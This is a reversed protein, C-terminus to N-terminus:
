VSINAETISDFRAPLSSTTTARAGRELYGNDIMKLIERVKYFAAGGRSGFVSAAITSVAPAEDANDLYDAVARVEDDSIRAAPTEPEAAHVVAPAPSVQLVPCNAPRAAIAQLWDMRPQMASAVGSTSGQVYWQHPQLPQWREPTDALARWTANDVNGMLRTAFMSRVGSHVGLTQVQADQTGLVVWIRCKRADRLLRRLPVAVAEGFEDVLAPFDDIYLVVTRGIQENNRIADIRRETEQLAANVCDVIGQYSYVQTFAHAVPRLDVPQEESHFLTLHRSLWYVDCGAHIDAIMLCLSTFTKGDGTRGAIITHMRKNASVATMDVTGQQVTATQATGAHLAASAAVSANRPTLPMPLLLRFISPQDAPRHKTEMIIIAGVALAALVWETIGLPFSAALVAIVIVVKTFEKNVMAM